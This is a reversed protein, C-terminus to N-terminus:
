SAFPKTVGDEEESEAVDNGRALEKWALGDVDGAVSSCANDDSREEERSDAEVATAVDTSVAPM